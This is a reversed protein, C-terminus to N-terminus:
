PARSGVSLLCKNILNFDQHPLYGLSDLLCLLKFSSGVSSKSFGLVSLNMKIKNKPM